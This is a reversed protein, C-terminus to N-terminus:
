RYRNSWGHRYQKKPNRTTHGPKIQQYKHQRNRISVLTRKQQRMRRHNIRKQSLPHHMAYKRYAPNRFSRRTRKSLLGAGRVTRTDQLSRPLSTRQRQRTNYHLSHSHCRSQSIRRQCMKSHGTRDTSYLQQTPRRQYNRHNGM